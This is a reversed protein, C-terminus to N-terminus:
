SCYEKVRLRFNEFNRFGYARRIIEEMRNHLGETISNTKSFRWMRVIEEQWNHLTEGLVMMHKLGCARLMELAELFLPIVRKAEAKSYIRTKIIRMLHQKFDYIEKMGPNQNLYRQLKVVQEPKLNEAHRRMLSLLGRNKRGVEDFEAWTKLFHHNILKVVHFRDAVIMASAFHKRAISRYTESLDMVIVKCNKKDPMKQLYSKLSMESRGLTVDFVKRRKLDCFTTMYGKKKTFHKEDIGLVRPCSANRTHSDKQKLFSKYCREVTSPSLGVVKASMSRTLGWHHKLAVEDRLPESSQFRPRVGPLRTHFYKRCARCQYKHTQVILVSNSHGISFHKIRRLFTDKKRLRTGECHPCKQQATHEVFLEILGKERVSLLKFDHLGIIPEYHPM